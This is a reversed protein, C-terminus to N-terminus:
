FFFLIVEELNTLLNEDVIIAEKFQIKGHIIM